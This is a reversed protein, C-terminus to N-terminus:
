RLSLPPLRRCCGGLSRCCLRLGPVGKLAPVQDVHARRDAQGQRVDARCVLHASWCAAQTRDVGAVASCQGLHEAVPDQRGQGPPCGGIHWLAPVPQGPHWGAARTCSSWTHASTALASTRGSTSSSARRCASSSMRTRTWCSLARARRAIPADVREQQDLLDPHSCLARTPAAVTDLLAHAPAASIAIWAPIRPLAAALPSQARTVRAPQPHLRLRLGLHRLGLLRSGLPLLPLPLLLALRFLLGLLLAASLPALPPLGLFALGCIM